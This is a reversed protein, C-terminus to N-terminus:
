KAYLALQLCFFLASIPANPLDQPWENPNIQRADETTVMPSVGRKKGSAGSMRILLNIRVRDWGLRPARGNARQTNIAAVALRTGKPYQNAFRSWM